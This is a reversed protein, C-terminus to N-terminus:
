NNLLFGGMSFSIEWSDFPLPSWYDALVGERIRFCGV